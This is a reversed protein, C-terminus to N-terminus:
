FACHQGLPTTDPEPVADTAPKPRATATAMEADKSGMPEGKTEQGETQELDVVPVQSHQQGAHDPERHSSAAQLDENCTFRAFFELRGTELMFVGVRKAMKRKHAQPQEQLVSPQEVPTNKVEDHPLRPEARVETSPPVFTSAALNAAAGTQSMNGSPAQGVDAQTAAAQQFGQQSGPAPPPFSPAAQVQSAAAQAADHVLKQMTEVYAQQAARGAMLMHSSSALSDLSPEQPFPLNFAPTMSAMSPVAPMPTMAPMPAM